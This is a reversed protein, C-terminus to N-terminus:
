DGSMRESVSLTAGDTDSVAVIRGQWCEYGESNSDVVHGAPGVVYGGTASAVTLISDNCFVSIIAAAAAGSSSNYVYWSMRKKTGRRAPAVETGNATTGTTNVTLDINRYGM